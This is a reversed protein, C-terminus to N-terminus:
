TGEEFGHEECRHAKVNQSFSTPWEGPTEETTDTHFGVRAIQVADAGCYCNNEPRFKEEFNDYPTVSVVHVRDCEVYSGEGHVHDTM